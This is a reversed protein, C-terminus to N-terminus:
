MNRGLNKFFGVPDKEMEAVESIDISGKNKWHELLSIRFALPRLWGLPIGSSSASGLSMMCNLIESTINEMTLEEYPIVEHMFLNKSKEENKIREDELEKNRQNVYDTHKKINFCWEMNPHKIVYAAKFGDRLLIVSSMYNDEEYSDKKKEHLYCISLWKNNIENICAAKADRTKANRSKMLKDAEDILSLLCHELEKDFEDSNEANLLLSNYYEKAKM